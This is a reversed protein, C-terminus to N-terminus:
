LTSTTKWQVIREEDPDYIALNIRTHELVAQGVPEEFITASLPVALFLEADYELWDMVSRYTIYQGVVRYFYDMDSGTYQFTKIEVLVIRTEEPRSIRLDIWLRRPAIYLTEQERDVSWGEKELARVVVDHYADKAPM